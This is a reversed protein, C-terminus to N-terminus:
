PMRASCKKITDDTPLKLPYQAGSVELTIQTGDFSYRLPRGDFPSPLDATNVKTPIPNKSLARALATMQQRRGAAEAIRDVTPHEGFGLKGYIMAATPFAFLGKLMRESAAELRSRQVVPADLAAWYDRAARVIEIKSKRQSLLLPVWPEFPSVDEPKLGLEERGKPTSCLDIMYLVDMLDGRHEDKLRPKPFGGVAQSLAKAFRPENRAVISWAAVLKMGMAYTSESSLRAILHPEEGVHEAIQYLKTADELADDVRNEHAALAGRLAVLRAARKITAYEPLMTAPGHEWNRDFWCRPLMAAQDVLELSDRNDQLVERALQLRNPNPFFTLENALALPDVKPERKDKLQRYFPAANEAPLATPIAAQYEAWTTALGAKRALSLEKKFEVEFRWANIRQCSVPIGIAALGM